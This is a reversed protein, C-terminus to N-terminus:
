RLRACGRHSPTGRRDRSLVRPAEEALREARGQARESGAQIEDLLPQIDAQFATMSASLRKVHRLLSLVLIAMLGVSAIAVAIVIAVAVSV